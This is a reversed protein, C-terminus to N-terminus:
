LNDRIRIMDAAAADDINEYRHGIQTFADRHHALENSIHATISHLHALKDQLAAASSGVWGSAASEITANAAQHVETHEVHHMALHDASVLLDAPDVELPEPM